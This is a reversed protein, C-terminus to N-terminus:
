PRHRPASHGREAAARQFLHSEVRREEEPRDLRREGRDGSLADTRYCSEALADDELQLPLQEDDQMQHNGSPQVPEGRACLASSLGVQRAEFKRRSRQRQGFGAGLSSSRDVKEV